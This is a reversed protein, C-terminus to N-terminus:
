LYQVCSGTTLPLRKLYLCVRPQSSSEVYSVFEPLKDVEMMLDCAESEANHSMLYPVIEGILVNLKGVKVGHLHKSEVSAPASVDNGMLRQWEQSIEGTLHRRRYANM